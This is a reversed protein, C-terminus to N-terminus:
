HVLAQTFSLQYMAVNFFQYYYNYWHNLTGFIQLVNGHSGISVNVM